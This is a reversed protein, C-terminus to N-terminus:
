MMNFIIKKKKFHESILVCQYKNLCTYFFIFLCKQAFFCDTRVKLADVGTLRRQKEQDRMVIFPQGYEDFLLQAMASMRDLVSFYVFNELASSSSFLFAITIEYDHMLLPLTLIPSGLSFYASIRLNKQSSKQFNNSLESCSIFHTFIFFFDLTTM